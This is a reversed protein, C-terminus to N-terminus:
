GDGARGSEQGSGGEHLTMKADVAWVGESSALVPNLDIEFLDDVDLALRAVRVLLAELVAVDVPPAGRYGKLIRYIKTEGIMEAAVRRDLGEALRCSVDELVNVFVGGAGFVILPGFTPDRMMGVFVEHGPPLMAQVEVGYVVADPARRAAADVIEAYARRVAEASRLGLKVGGIDTKHLISPSAIKLAVPGGIAQAFAAAEDASRALHAKATPVGYAELVRLAEGSLLAKRRDARVAQLVEIATARSAADVFTEDAARGDTGPDSPGDGADSAPARGKLAHATLRALATVAREPFPYTPIRRRRLIMEAEAMQAGGLLVAFLPKDPHAAQADVIVQATAAPEAAATPCLLVIASDVGPDALVAQLAAAYRDARADGLVDVPGLVSAAPPLVTRLREITEQGLSAMRLKERDLQDVTLIGGGGANTVVAVRRGMPRTPSRFAWALDFLEQMSRARIVGARRFAAEYARDSGALAGTHSLAARMGLESTGSKLVIIPKRTTVQRAIDVFRRGDKVDELYMLIVRSQADPELLLLLDAEDLDAKNGISLMRSFGMGERKAWDLMSLLVAGSQSVAAIEGADPFDAAFSANLPTHTDIVGIVNPGLVRMGYQSKARVLAAERERGEQGTEKFGASLVILARVGIRGAEEAVAPVAPAPVAVVALDIDGHREYAVTLSEEAVAGAIMGGKPNVPIVEGPYGAKRLNDVVIHGIKKPDRSAGVVAVRKPGFLAASLREVSRGVDSREISLHM